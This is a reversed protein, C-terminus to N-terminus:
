PIIIKQVAPLMEEFWYKLNVKIAFSDEDSGLGNRDDSFENFIEWQLGRATRTQNVKCKLWSQNSGFSNFNFASTNELSSNIPTTDSILHLRVEQGWVMTLVARGSYFPHDNALPLLRGKFRVICSHSESIPRSHQFKLVTWISTLAPLNVRQFRNKLMENM